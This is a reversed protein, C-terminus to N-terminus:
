QAAPDIEVPYHISPDIGFANGLWWSPRNSVYHIVNRGSPNTSDLVSLDLLIHKARKWKPQKRRSKGVIKMSHQHIIYRNKATKVNDPHSCDIWQFDVDLNVANLCKSPALATVPVM